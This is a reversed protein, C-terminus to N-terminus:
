IGFPRLVVNNLTKDKASTLHVHFRVNTEPGNHAAGAHVVDGRAVYMSYPPIVVEMPKQRQFFDTGLGEMDRRSLTQLGFDNVATQNRKMWDLKTVTDHSAPWALFKAGDRGSHMMFYSGDSVPTGTSSFRVKYDWHPPQLTCGPESLLLRSNRHAPWSCSQIRPGASAWYSESMDYEPRRM